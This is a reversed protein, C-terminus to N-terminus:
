CRKHTLSEIEQINTKKYDDNYIHKLAHQLAQERRITDDDINLYITYGDCCPVIMEHIGPPLQVCYTYIEDM